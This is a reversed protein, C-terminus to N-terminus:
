EKHQQDRNEGVLAGRSERKARGELSGTHGDAPRQRGQKEEGARRTHPDNEPEERIDREVRPAHV